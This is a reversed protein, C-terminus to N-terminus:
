NSSLVNRFTISLRRKRKLGIDSKRFAIGHKWKYRADKRLILLSMPELFIFNKSVGKTFDMVCHSSLSLSSITDSFCTTCDIHPAIGQGELYENIIVQNPKENFIKDLYLQDCLKELWYPIKGLYKPVKKSKYEYEYGYHQTRRKLSLNWSSSDILQILNEQYELSIYNPIYELGCIDPKLKFLDQQM